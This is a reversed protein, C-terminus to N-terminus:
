RRMMANQHSIVDLANTEYGPRISAPGGPIRASSVRGVPVLSSSVRVQSVPAASSSGGSFLNRGQSAVWGLGSSVGSVTSRTASALYPAARGLTNDVAWNVARDLRTGEYAQGAAVGAVVGAAPAVPATTGVGAATTLFAAGAGVGFALVVNDVRRAAGTVGAFFRDYSDGQAMAVDV